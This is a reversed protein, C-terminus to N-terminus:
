KVAEWYWGKQQFSYGRDILFDVEQGFSYSAKNPDHSLIIRKNQSIQDQLFQKNVKWVGDWGFERQFATFEDIKFSTADFHSAVRRYQIGDEFTKGLVVISSDPNITAQNVFRRLTLRRTLNVAGVGGLVVQDDAIRWSRLYDIADDVKTTVYNTGADLAGSVKVVASAGIISQATTGWATAAGPAALEVAVETGILGAQTSSPSTTLWGWGAKLGNGLWVAGRAAFFGIGFAELSGDKAAGNNPDSYGFSGDSRRYSPFGLDAYLAGELYRGEGNVSGFILDDPIISALAPNDALFARYMDARDPATTTVVVSPLSRGAHDIVPTIEFPLNLERPVYNRAQKLPAAEPARAMRASPLSAPTKGFNNPIPHPSFTPAVLAPNSLQALQDSLLAEVGSTDVDVMGDSTLGRALAGGLASGIVDPIAARINDGFSSGDLATRTAANALASATGVAIQNGIKGTQDGIARAVGTNGFAHGAGAGVGAAAVGVWSFKDQMGTAVGIGQVAISNLM